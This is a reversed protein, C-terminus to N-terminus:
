PAQEAARAAVAAAPKGDDQPPVFPEPRDDPLSEVYLSHSPFAFGSGAGEVVEKIHYALQEKIELWEGWNTTKTFCYLMIDISSDNFSDIRVFTSVEPPQAFAENGIVYSEIGDRIQRLQDVTTRYEVGIKWYIRRHTMASFNTVANDSLKANPVFVPAKDFRRVRTSRFGITEVTGEVVGDVRIWDGPHFRKEALVLIGAILNKFLDQAGLAVAVGFLGLGAIIPGVEIGWIELVTAVGIFVIGIKTAKVLWEIMPRTFIRELRKFLFSLPGIANFFGWFITLVVLSRLFNEAILQFTGEPGLYEIAFFAGMVVPIFRVPQELAAILEDDFRGETKEVFRKFRALVITTFLRRFILFLLFIGLAILLRGIEIGLFGQNWVDLVLAWFEQLQQM